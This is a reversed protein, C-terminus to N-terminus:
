DLLKKWQKPTIKLYEVIEKTQQEDRITNVNFSIKIYVTYDYEDVNVLFLPKLPLYKNLSFTATVKSYAKDSDWTSSESLSKQSTTIKASKWNTDLELSMKASGKVYKVNSDKLYPTVYLKFEGNTHVHGHGDHEDFEPAKYDLSLDFDFYKSKEYNVFKSSKIYTEGEKFLQPKGKIYTVTYILSITVVPLIFLYLFIFLIKKNKVIYSIFKNKSSM